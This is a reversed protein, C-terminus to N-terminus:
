KVPVNKKIYKVIYSKEIKKTKYKRKKFRAPYTIVKIKDLYIFIM